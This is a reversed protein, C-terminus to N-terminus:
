INFIFFILKTITKKYLYLLNFISIFIMINIIMNEQNIIALIIKSKIYILYLIFLVM